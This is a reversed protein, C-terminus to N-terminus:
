GTGIENYSTGGTLDISVRVFYSDIGWEIDAFTGSEVTGEGIHLNVLGFNNTTPVHSESYIVTGDTTSQIIEIFVGVAQDAVINGSADRVVAQYKFSEPSQAYSYSLLIFIISTLTLTKKM